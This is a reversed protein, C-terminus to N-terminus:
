DFIREIARNFIELSVLGLSHISCVVVRDYIFNIGLRGWYGGLLKKNAEDSVRSNTLGPQQFRTEDICGLRIINPFEPKVIESDVPDLPRMRLRAVAVRTFWGSQLFKEHASMPQDGDICNHYKMNFKCVHDIPGDGITASCCETGAEIQAM